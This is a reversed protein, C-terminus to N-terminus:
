NYHGPGPVDRDILKCGKIYVKEFHERSMGFSYARGKPTKSFISPQNYTGPPPAQNRNDLSSLRKGTGFYISVKPRLTQITYCSKDCAPRRDPPFRSAKPFSYLQHSTSKVIPCEAALSLGRHKQSM